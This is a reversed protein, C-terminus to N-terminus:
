RLGLKRMHDANLLGANRAQFPATFGDRQPKDPLYGIGEIDTDGVQKGLIAGLGFLCQKIKITRKRRFALASPDIQRRGENGALFM